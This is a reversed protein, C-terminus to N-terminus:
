SLKSFDPKRKQMFASMAEIAAPERLMRTFHAGEEAMTEKLSGVYARKLLAKTMRVSQPPREALQKAKALAQTQYDDAFVQNVLGYSLAQEASFTEGLMLLEAARQYGALMPLLLSSGAEPCLGLNVFPMQFKAQPAAYVLDCHMLLTTGVGVAAGNVAAVLPKKQAPLQALFRMVPSDASTPPTQLFDVLDNGSTFCDTTGTIFGVRLSDDADLTQLAATLATYMDNTLANKKDPRNITIKLIYGDISTQIIDSSM